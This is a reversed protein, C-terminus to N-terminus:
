WGTGAGGGRWGTGARGRELGRAPHRTGRHPLTAWRPPRHERSDVVGARFLPQPSPRRRALSPAHEGGSIEGDDPAGLHHEVGDVQDDVPGGPDPHQAAVAGALRGQQADQGPQLRRRRPRDLARRGPEVDAVEGLLGVGELVLGGGGVQAPAGAQGDGLLGHPGGQPGDAVVRASCLQFGVVVGQGAEEGEPAVVVVGAGRPHQGADAERLADELDGQGPQRAALPDLGAQGGDQEGAEVHEQQVLGGVVEVEVAQGPQLPEQSVLVARHHQDAV